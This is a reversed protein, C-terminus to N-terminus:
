QSGIDDHGQELEWQVGYCDQIYFFRIESIIHCVNDKEKASSELSGDFFIFDDAKIPSITYPKYDVADSIMRVGEITKLFQFAVDINEVGLAVHRVGGIDNTNGCPRRDAGKPYHYEMLEIFLPAPETPIQLFQICVDVKKAEEMFGASKAFGENKFHAFYQIPIAGLAQQYFQSARAIDDVVINIHSISKYKIM